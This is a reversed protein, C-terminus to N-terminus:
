GMALAGWALRKFALGKSQVRPPRGVMPPALGLAAGRAAAGAGADTPEVGVLGAGPLDAGAVAGPLGGTAGLGIWAWSGPRPKAGAALPDGRSAAAWAAM